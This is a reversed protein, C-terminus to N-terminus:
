RQCRRGKLDNVTAAAARLSAIAKRTATELGLDDGALALDRAHKAYMAALDFCEGIYVRLEDNSGILPPNRVPANM